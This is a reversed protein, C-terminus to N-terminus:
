VLSAEAGADPRPVVHPHGLSGTRFPPPNMTMVDLPAQARAGHPDPLGHPGPVEQSPTPPFMTYQPYPMHQQITRNSGGSYEIPSFMNQQYSPSWGSFQTPSQQPQMAPQNLPRIQEESASSVFSQQAMYDFGRHSCPSIVTMGTPTRTLPQSSFNDQYETKVSSQPSQFAHSQRPQDEFGLTPAMQFMQNRDTAMAVSRAQQPASLPDVTTTLPASTQGASSLPTLLGEEIDEHDVQDGQPDSDSCGDSDKDNKLGPDRNVVYIVTTPDVEQRELREELKRVRFIEDLIEMREPPKIQRKADYAVEKLKDSTIGYKGLNRIIHVLLRLRQDKKLHDPEKHVVGAPWWEPKTKEPDGKEGPPAGPPPRGGNYPHKVQKRPEIFKIFAKAMQRCNLQQFHKLAMEYYAKVKEEDGVELPVRDVTSYLTTEETPGDPIGDIYQMDLASDRTLGKRRKAQRVPQWGGLDGDQNPLKAAYDFSFNSTSFTVDDDNFIPRHPGMPMTRHANAKARVVKLFKERLEPTFFGQSLERVAPSEEVRVNGINDMYILAYHSLTHRALVMNPADWATYDEQCVSPSARKTPGTGPIPGAVVM